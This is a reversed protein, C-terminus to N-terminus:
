NGGAFCLSLPLTLPVTLAVSYSACHSLPLTLPVALSRLLSASHSLILSHTHSIKTKLVKPDMVAVLVLVPSLSHTLLYMYEALCLSLPASHSSCLSLSDSFSHTHSIKTKLEKSKMTVVLVLLTLSPCLSLPASHSFPLTLSSCLSLPASYSLPLTLLRLLGTRPSSVILRPAARQLPLCLHM